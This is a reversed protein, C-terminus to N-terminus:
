PLLRHIQLYLVVNLAISAALLAFALFAVINMRKGAAKLEDVLEEQEIMQRETAERVKEFQDALEKLSADHALAQGRLEQQQSKLDALSSEVQSLDLPKPAPQAHPQPAMIGALAGLVNGELLPLLRQLLPLSSRLAQLTRQMATAESAETSVPPAALARAAAPISETRRAEVPVPHPGPFAQESVPSSGAFRAGSETRMLKALLEVPHPEGEAARGLEDNWELRDPDSM